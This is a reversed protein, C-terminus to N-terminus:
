IKSWNLGNLWYKVQFLVNICFNKLPLYTGTSKKNQINNWQEMFSSKINYPSSNHDNKSMFWSNLWKKM